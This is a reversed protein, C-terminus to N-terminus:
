GTRNLSYEPWYDIYVFGRMITPIDVSNSFHPYMNEHLGSHGFLQVGARFLNILSRNILSLSM